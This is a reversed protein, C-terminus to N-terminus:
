DKFIIWGVFVGVLYCVLAVKFVVFGIEYYQRDTLKM